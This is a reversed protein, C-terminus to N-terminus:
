ERNDKIAVIGFRRGEQHLELIIKKSNADYLYFIESDKTFIKDFIEKVEAINQADCKPQKQISVSDLVIAKGSVAEDSKKIQYTTTFIRCDAVIMLTKDNIQLDTFDDNPPTEMSWSKVKDEGGNGYYIKFMSYNGLIKTDREKSSDLLATIIALIIYLVLLIKVARKPKKGFSLFLNKIKFSLNKTEQTQKQETQQEKTNEKLKTDIAKLAQLIKKEEEDSFFCWSCVSYLGLTLCAFKEDNLAINHRAFPVQIQYTEVVCKQKEDYTLTRTEKGWIGDPNNEIIQKIQEDM